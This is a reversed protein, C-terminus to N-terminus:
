GPPPPDPPQDCVADGRGPRWNQRPCGLGSGLDAVLGSALVEAKRDQRAALWAPFDTSSDTSSTHM